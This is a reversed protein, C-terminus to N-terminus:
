IRYTKRNLLDLTVCTEIPEGPCPSRLYPGVPNGRSSLNSTGTGLLVTIIKVVQVFSRKEYVHTGPYTFTRYARRSQSPTRILVEPGNNPVHDTKTPPITSSPPPGLLPPRRTHIRTGDSPSGFQFRLLYSPCDDVTPLTVVM